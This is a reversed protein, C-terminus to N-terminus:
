RDTGEGPQELLAMLASCGGSLVRGDVVAAPTRSIGLSGAFKQNDEVQSLAVATEAMSQELSLGLAKGIDGLASLPEEARVARLVPILEKLPHGTNQLVEVLLAVEQSFPEDPMVIVLIRCRFRDTM